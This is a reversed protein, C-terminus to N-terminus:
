IEISNQQVFSTIEEEEAGTEAKEVSRRIYAISEIKKGKEHLIVGAYLYPRFLNTNEEILEEFVALAEDERDLSLLTIAYDSRLEADDSLLLASEYADISRNMYHYYREEQQSERAWNRFYAAANWWDEANDAIMAIHRSAEAAGDFRGLRNYLLILEGYYPIAARSMRADEDGMDVLATELTDIRAKIADPDDFDVGGHFDFYTEDTTESLEHHFELSATDPRADSYESTFSNGAADPTTNIDSNKESSQDMWILLILVALAATIFGFFWKAM